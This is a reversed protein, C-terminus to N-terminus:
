SSACRRCRAAASTWRGSATWRRSAQALVTSAADYMQGQDLTDSTMSLIMVPADAPNVKRYTPNSPLGTPLLSRAANIAAQV